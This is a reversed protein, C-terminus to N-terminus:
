KYYSRIYITLLIVVCSDLERFKWETHAEAVFDVYWEIGKLCATIVAGRDHLCDCASTCWVGETDYLRVDMGTGSGRLPMCSGQTLPCEFVVGTNDVVAGVATGNPAAIVISHLHSPLSPLPTPSSPSPLSLNLPFPLSPSSLLSPQPFPSLLLSLFPHPPNAHCHRLSFLSLPRTHVSLKVTYLAIYVPCSNEMVGKQWM